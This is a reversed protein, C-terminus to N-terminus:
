SVPVLLYDIDTPALKMAFCLEDRLLQYRNAGGALGYQKKIRRVEFVDSRKKPAETCTRNCNRSVRRAQIACQVRQLGYDGIRLGVNANVTENM